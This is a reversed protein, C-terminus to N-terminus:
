QSVPLPLAAQRPQRQGADQARVTRVVASRSSHLHAASSGWAVGIRHPNRARDHASPCPIGDRTPRETISKLGLGALFERFIRKVIPAAIPDPILRHPRKGDAAKAPNPHPPTSTLTPPRIFNGKRRPLWPALCGALGISARRYPATATQYDFLIAM